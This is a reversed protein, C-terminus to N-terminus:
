RRKTCFFQICIKIKEFLNTKASYTFIDYNNQEIKDLIAEYLCASLAIAQQTHTPLYKYGKRAQDYEQRICYIQNKMYKQFQNMKKSAHQKSCLDIIDDHTLGFKALDFSPIYIRDLINYDEQIDRLFNTMQMANALKTAYIYAKHNKVGVIQCMMHGIVVASGYMYNTLQQYTQYRHIQCDMYMSDFFSQIHKHDINRNKVLSVFAWFHPNQTQDHTYAKQRWQYYNTLEEKAVTYHKKLIHTRSTNLVTHKLSQKDIEDVINDAIRVFWYLTIVDNRIKDPFVMTAIRYSTGYSLMRLYSQFM